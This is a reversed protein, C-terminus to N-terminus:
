RSKHIKDKYKEEIADLAAIVENLSPWDEGPRRFLRFNWKGSEKSFCLEEVTVVTESNLVVEEHGIIDNKWPSIRIRYMHETFAASPNVKLIVFGVKTSVDSKQKM